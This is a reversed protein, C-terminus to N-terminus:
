GLSRSLGISFPIPQESGPFRRRGRAEGDELELVVEVAVPTTRAIRITVSDAGPAELPGEITVRKTRQGQLFLNRAAGSGGRIEARAAVITWAQPEEPIELRALTQLGHAATRPLQPELELRLVQAASPPEDRGCAALALLVAGSSASLKM